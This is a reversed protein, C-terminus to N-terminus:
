PLDDKQDSPDGVAELSAMADVVAALVRERRAHTEEKQTRIEVIGTGGRDIARSLLKALEEVSGARAHPIEFFAAARQFDLGHPTSFFRSFSPEHERVPLTHFIGGGNNNVVVFVVPPNLSKAVLLGNLDHFFALDGLVGVTPVGDRAIGGEGPGDDGSVRQGGTAASGFAIGLTTSVLGDIGSTGRNGFVRLHKPSPFGFADLDRIPMSSAIFLTAPDPLGEVLAALVEGEM